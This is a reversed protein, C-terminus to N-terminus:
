LSLLPQKTPPVFDSPMRCNKSLNCSPCSRCLNGVSHSGGKALPIVHDIHLLTTPFPRTCYYCTFVLEKKWALVVPRIKLPSVTVSKAIARREMLKLARELKRKQIERQRQLKLKHPNNKRWQRNYELDRKLNLSRRKRTYRTSYGPHKATWKRMTAARSALHNKRWRRRYELTSSPAIKV